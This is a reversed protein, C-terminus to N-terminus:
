VAEDAGEAVMDYLAAQGRNRRKQAQIRAITPKDFGQLEYYVDTGAFEADAAALKSAWDGMAAMNPMSAPLFHAMVDRDEPQLQSLSRNRKVALAMLAIERLAEGNYANLDEARRILKDNQANIADSSTPNADNVV